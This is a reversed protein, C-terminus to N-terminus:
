VVSSALILVTTEGGPVRVGAVGYAGAGITARAGVAAGVDVVDRTADMSMM